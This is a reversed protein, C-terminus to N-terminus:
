QFYVRVGFNLSNHAYEADITELTEFNEIQMDGLSTMYKFEAFLGFNHIPRLEAGAILQFALSGGTFESGYDDDIGAALLGIGGGGYFTTVNGVQGKFLFNGMFAVGFFNGTEALGDVTDVSNSLISMEVEWAMPGMNYGYGLTLPLGSSSDYTVDFDGVDGDALNGLGLSGKFYGGYSLQYNQGGPVPPPYNPNSNGYGGQNPQQAPYRGYDQAQLEFCFALMVSFALLLSKIM